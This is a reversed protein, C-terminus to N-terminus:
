SRWGAFASANSVDFPMPNSSVTAGTSINIGILHAHAAAAPPPASTASQSPSPSSRQLSFFTESSADYACAPGPSYKSPALLAIAGSADITVIDGGSAVAVAAPASLAARAVSLLLLCLFLPGSPLPPTAPM